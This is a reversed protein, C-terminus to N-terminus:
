PVVQRTGPGLPRALALHADYGLNPAQSAALVLVAGAVWLFRRRTVDSYLNGRRTLPHRATLRYAPRKGAGNALPLMAQYLTGAPDLHRGGPSLIWWFSFARELPSGYPM